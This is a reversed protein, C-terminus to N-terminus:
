VNIAYPYMFFINEDLQEIELKNVIHDLYYCKKKILKDKLVQAEQTNVLLNSIIQEITKIYLEM